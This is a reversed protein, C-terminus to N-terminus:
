DYHRVRSWIEELPLYLGRCVYVSMNNEYPMVYPHHFVAMEEVSEFARLHNERRGGLIILVEITQGRLGWHWYNNHGCVAKPLSYKPGFFDVAGAEGYNQTYIGCRNRAEESLNQYVSAITAVMEEWGFMDAYHQPLPGMEHNEGVQPRIGMWEQYAIFKEVPLIPLALPATIIGGFVIIFINTPRLWFIRPKRLWGELCVAGGALMTPYIPGIYYTKAHTFIFVIFISVYIWGLVRFPKGDKSLLFFYLGILLLPFIFPHIELLQGAIFQGPKLAVNKHMAANRMFELTPFGNAVQWLIHPLFILLAIGGAVWIKWSLFRKREQTLLLGVLFGFGLFLVSIKNQLGLGLIIGLSLWDKTTEQKLIRIILLLALTWFLQDFPNMSLSNGINLYLPSVIVAMAALAQAYLKGGLALVIRGALFVTIAGAVAPFFRIAFLTDGMLWRSFATVLAIFPPLDVYGLALHEGCAIYYFEDRFYGYGDNCIFHIFLKILALSLLLAVDPKLYTIWKKEQM